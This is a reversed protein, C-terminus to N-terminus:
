IDRNYNRGFPNRCHGQPIFERWSKATIIYKINCITSFIFDSRDQATHLFISYLSNKRYYM